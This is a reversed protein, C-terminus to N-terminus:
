SSVFASTPLGYENRGETGKLFFIVFVYLQLVFLPIGIYMNVQVWQMYLENFGLQGLASVTMSVLQSSALVYVPIRGHRDSDQVRRIMLPVMSLYVVTLAMTMFVSIKSYYGASEPNSIIVYAIYSSFSVSLLLHLGYLHWFEKRSTRGKVDLGQKLAHQFSLQINKIFNKNSFM